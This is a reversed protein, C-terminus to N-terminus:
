VQTIQSILAYAEDRYLLNKMRRVYTSKPISMLGVENGCYDVKSKMKINIIYFINCWISDM